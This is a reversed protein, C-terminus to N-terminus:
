PGLLAAREESVKVTETNLLFSGTGEGGQWLCVNDAQLLCTQTTTKSCQPM